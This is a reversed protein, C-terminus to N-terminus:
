WSGNSAYPDDDNTGAIVGANSIGTIDYLRDPGRSFLVYYMDNGSVRYYYETTIAAGFPDILTKEVIKPSAANLFTACPTNTNNGWYRGDNHIAYSEIATKLTRLEGGAKSVNGEDQMARFRPLSIGILIAIIAMVILLEILTFGNKKMFM